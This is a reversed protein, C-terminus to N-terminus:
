CFESLHELQQPIPNRPHFFLTAINRTRSAMIPIAADLPEPLGDFPNARCLPFSLAHNLMRILGM